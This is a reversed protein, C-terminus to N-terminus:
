MHPANTNDKELKEKILAFLEDPKVPKVLYADAGEDLVKSGTDLSPLGTIMIKISNRTKDKARALVESGDLDPLRYDMLVVDYSRSNMKALAEKGTEAFDTEYGGRQLLKTFTRVVSRDDDVILVTKKQQSL